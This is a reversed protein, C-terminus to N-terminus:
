ELIEHIAMEAVPLWKTILTEVHAPAVNAEDYQHYTLALKLALKERMIMGYDTQESM